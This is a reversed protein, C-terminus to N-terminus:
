ANQKAFEVERAFKKQQTFANTWDVNTKMDQIMLVYTPDDEPEDFRELVLKKAIVPLFIEGPKGGLMNIIEAKVEDITKLVEIDYENLRYFMDAFTALKHDARAERIKRYKWLPRSLFKLVFQDPTVEEAIQRKFEAVEKKLGM